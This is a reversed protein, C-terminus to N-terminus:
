NVLMVSNLKSGFANEVSDILTPNINHKLYFDCHGTIASYLIVIRPQLCITFKQSIM